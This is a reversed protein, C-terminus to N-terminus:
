QSTHGLKSLTHYLNRHTEVRVFSVATREQHPKEWHRERHGITQERLYRRLSARFACIGLIYARATRESVWDGERKIDVRGRGRVTSLETQNIAWSVSVRSLLLGLKFYARVSTGVQTFNPVTHCERARVLITVCDLAIGHPSDAGPHRQCRLIERKREAVAGSGVCSSPRCSNANAMM